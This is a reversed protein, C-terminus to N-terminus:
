RGPSLRFWLVKDPRAGTMPEGAQSLAISHHGGSSVVGLIKGTTRDVHLLWCEVGNAVNHPQTGIWLDNRDGVKLSFTKGLHDWEGLYKGEPTFWQIRGNERDAVYLTGEGDSTIGHPLNLQGPKQGATGWQRVLEGNSRYELIRNNAYGDSIFLRGKLFAIDTTGCFASKPKAPLGGVSIRLLEQGQPTFKYVMSSAADVTWINGEPDIRISHPIKYLARGWSRLIQGKADVAIVPDLELGRQFLYIVGQRDVALSSVFDLHKDAPLNIQLETATLPLQPSERLLKRFAAARSDLDDAAAALLLGFLVALRM